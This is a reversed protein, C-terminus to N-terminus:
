ASQGQMYEDYSLITYTGITGANGSVGNGDSGTGGDGGTGGNVLFAGNNTITENYIIYVAGGGGGGGGGGGTGSRSVTSSGGTNGNLGNCNITGNIILNGGVYLIIVGGGYNGAGGKGYSLNAINYSGGGGGYSGAGPMDGQALTANTGETWLQEDPILVTITDSSGGTGGHSNSAGGAGGGGGAGYGGGYSRAPMATGGPGGLPDGWDDDWRYNGGRGGNGGAGCVLEAPYGYSNDPNTKPAKGSQDITGNITCDGKVRLILGANCASTTYTGGAEITLTNYKKEVASYHPTIVTETHTEGNTVVLDGDSGDGFINPVLGGGGGIARGYIIAM